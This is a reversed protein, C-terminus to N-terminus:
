KVLEFDGPKWTKDFWPELTGLLETDVKDPALVSEPVDAKYKPSYNKAMAQPTITTACLTMTIIAHTLAKSINYKM